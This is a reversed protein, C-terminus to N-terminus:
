RGATHEAAPAPVGERAREVERTQLMSVLQGDVRRVREGKRLEKLSGLKLEDRLQQVVEEPECEGRLQHM